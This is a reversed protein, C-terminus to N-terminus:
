LSLNQWVTIYIFPAEGNINTYDPSCISMHIFAAQEPYTVLESYKSNPLPCLFAYLFEGGAIVNQTCVLNDEIISTELRFQGRHQSINLVTGSQSRQSLSLLYIYLLVGSHHQAYEPGTTYVSVNSPTQLKRPPPVFHCLKNKQGNGGEGGGGM